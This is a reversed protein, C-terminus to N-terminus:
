RSGWSYPKFCHAFQYVFMCFSWWVATSQTTMRAQNTWGDSLLHKESVNLFIYKQKVSTERM